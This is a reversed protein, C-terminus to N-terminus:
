AKTSIFLGAEKPINIAGETQRINEFYEYFGNLDNESYSSITITSKIWDILDQTNTVSLSDEYDVRQVDTFYESLIEKGNQLNFSFSQTFASIKPNVQKFADHLYTRMGGNGNTASYFIGGSRLVRKVESLARSLDPIHYLMHNAIIVDLCNDPFPISQIDIKQALFNKHNSYKDWVVKVMGDSFDSLVLICDDPLQEIRNEWQLGNGCGLELIRCGKSFKYKEFLWPFLGQKNTSHKAHLNSRKSLNKDDKYQEKVNEIKDMTSMFAEM